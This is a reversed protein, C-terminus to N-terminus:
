ALEDAIAQHTEFDALLNGTYPAQVITGDSGHFFHQLAQWVEIQIDSRTIRGVCDRKDAQALGFGASPGSSIGNNWNWLVTNKRKRGFFIGVKVNCNM